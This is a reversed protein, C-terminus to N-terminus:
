VYLVHLLVRCKGNKDILMCIAKTFGLPLIQKQKKQCMRKGTQIGITFESNCSFGAMTSLSLIRLGCFTDKSTNENYWM